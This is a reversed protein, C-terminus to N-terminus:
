RLALVVSSALMVTYGTFSLVILWSIRRKTTM